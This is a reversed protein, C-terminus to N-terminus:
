KRNAQLLDVMAQGMAEGINMYTEANGGYHGGSSGGQSLPHSYVTAVNGRFEPYEGSNGDVALMADLIKGAKDTDGKMTQGLTACVFNANPADFDKRLQKILHVLNQEYRSALAASRSDRDGQWWFFGAVEYEKAGPYYKDIQALVEKARAVDGDYQMGAYWGIKKPETGRVWREPTGKYGPHIWTVGKPDTFEFGESGPPLLDWGLARNGICSKLILVPADTVHGLRYGIGIEPGIKGNITMWENNFVRMGGTGSGMVRVHRVDKRVTWNGTDDVLYPYLKKERVAYELSGKGGNIKGFGLMNSQGMLIYVQVPKNMDAPKGDPDPLQEDPTIRPLSAFEIQDQSGWSRVVGAKGGSIPDLGAFQRSFPLYEGVLPLENGTNLFRPQVLVPELQETVRRIKAPGFGRAGSFSDCRIPMHDCSKVHASTLEQVSKEDINVARDVAASELQAVIEHKQGTFQAAFLSLLVLCYRVFKIQNVM